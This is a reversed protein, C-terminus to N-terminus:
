SAREGKAADPKEDAERAPAPFICTVTTGEGPASDILVKGGHLEMFDRVISLGLGVGRHRSGTTHSEFRDFVREIIEPPIGRGRDIVKFVVETDRRLAALTVTQGSRSFGIANSLLNFLIQRVRKADGPFTGVEEPAVIQLEINNEALRDQVGELAAHMAGQADVEEWDLAMADEDITALDLIDDIIALLAASSKRVYGLYELQRENLAGTTEEGLLHVFGNINNLPSRLEYSIHHIFDNRLKEAARLAKNSDTLAREVNVDATVNVFTLLAAGEPLPQATVDLWVGDTREIRHNLGTRMDSLGTVFGRLDSWTASNPHLAQCLDAIEDFRPKQEPPKPELMKPDLRWLKVFAPNAFKLRGDAGFVVVGERLTELTENQMRYLANFRWELKYQDSLDDYLYTVGGQPNPHVVVRLMRGDPTRWVYEQQDLTRYANLLRSKWAKYDEYPTPRRDADPPSREDLEVPLRQELRLRDLIEMDRPRLDLFASDLRWLDNYATNRYILRQSRDFIAVATRLQDLTRAHSRMQRQSDIRVTEIEQRDLAIAGTLRAAPTQTVDLLHRAGAVVANVRDRWVVSKARAKAAAARASQDLLELQKEIADAPTKAEVAQVYANNVFTLRGDPDRIWVPAPLAELMARLGEVEAVSSAHRERLGILELKDGLVERIRLVARGSVARGEADFHRGTLGVLALRFGEGCDRLREVKATLDRAADPALWAGFGLLRRPTPMDTVLLPSGEIDPERDPGDWAIFIQPESALFTKARDLKASTEALQSALEAERARWRKRESIHTLAVVASFLALGGSLAFGLMDQDLTLTQALDATEARARGAFMLVGACPAAIPALCRLLLPSSVFRAGRKGAGRAIERWPPTM